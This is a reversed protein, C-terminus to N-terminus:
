VFEKSYTPLSYLIKETCISVPVNYINSIFDSFLTSKGDPSGVVIHYPNLKNVYNALSLAINDSYIIDIDCNCEKSIKNLVKLDKARNKAQATKNLITVVVIERKYKKALDQTSKIINVSSYQATICALIPSKM